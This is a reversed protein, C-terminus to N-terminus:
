KTGFYAESLQINTKKRIEAVQRKAEEPAIKQEIEPRAEDLTKAKREQVQILHYGFPTKTPESIEGPPLSFVVQEFQPVMRGKGFSGLDGGNAGSGTDDSEAKALTAFDAGGALQKKIDQAKALAEADTLDQQGPKLPVRSGQFRILIHRAKAQDYENKHDDYYKQIAADTPKASKMLSQYLSNALVQEENIVMQQKVAPTQDLKRRKAEQALAKLEAFKDALDRKGEPTGAQAKLQEPLAGIFEDFQSKTMTETGVTFVVPDTASGTTAPKAAPPKAPSATAPKAAAPKTGAAPKPATAAPPKPAPSTQGYMLAPLGALLASVLIRM